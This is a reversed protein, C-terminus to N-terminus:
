SQPIELFALCIAASPSDHTARCHAIGNKIFDCIFRSPTKFMSFTWGGSDAKEVLQMAADMSGHFDDETCPGDPHKNGAECFERWSQTRYCHSCRFTRNDDTSFWYHEPRELFGAKRTCAINIEEATM